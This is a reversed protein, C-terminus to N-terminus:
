NKILKRELEAFDYTNQPYDSFSNKKGKKDPRNAENLYAEFNAPRFLTQPRLYERMSSDSWDKVKSDIVRKFDDVTYGEKLRAIISKRTAETKPKFQSQSKENLYDVIQKIDSDYDPKGVININDETSSIDIDIDKDISTSKQETKLTSKLESKLTSKVGKNLRARAAGEVKASYKSKNADLQKKAEEYIRQVAKNTFRCDDNGYFGYELVACMFDYATDRDWTLIHDAWDQQFIINLKM